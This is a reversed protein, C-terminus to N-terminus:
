ALRSDDTYVHLSKELGFTESAAIIITQHAHSSAVVRRRNNIAISSYPV